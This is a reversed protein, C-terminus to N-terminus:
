KWVEKDKTVSEYANYLRGLEEYQNDEDGNKAHNYLVRIPRLLRKLQKRVHGLEVAAKANGDAELDFQDREEKTAEHAKEEAALCREMQATVEHAIALEAIWHKRCEYLDAANDLRRGCADCTANLAANM